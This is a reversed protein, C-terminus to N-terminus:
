RGAQGGGWFRQPRGPQVAAPETETEATVVKRLRLDGDAVGVKITDRESFEGAQLQM